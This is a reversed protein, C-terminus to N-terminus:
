HERGHGEHEGGEGSRGGHREGGHGGHPDGRYGGRGGGPLVVCAASSMIFTFLTAAFLARRITTIYM